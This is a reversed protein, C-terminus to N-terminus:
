AGDHNSVEPYFTGENEKILWADCAAAVIDQLTTSRAHAIDQMRRATKRPIRFTMKYYDNEPKGRTKLGIPTRGTEAKAEEAQRLMANSLVTGKDKM